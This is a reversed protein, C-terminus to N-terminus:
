RKDGGQKKGGMEFGRDWKSAFSAKPTQTLVIMPRAHKASAELQKTRAEWQCQDLIAHKHIHIQTHTYTYM